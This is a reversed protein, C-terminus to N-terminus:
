IEWRRARTIFSAEMIQQQHARGVEVRARWAPEAVLLLGDIHPCVRIEHRNVQDSRRRLHEAKAAALREAGKMKAPGSSSRKARAALEDAYNEFYEDIRDLERRLSNEQRSRVADLEEKLDVELAGRLLDNWDAPDPLPWPINAEPGSDPQAWLIEDALGEDLAGGPLSIALRRLSWHQDIAQIECRALVLLSFHFDAKFPEALRWRTTDTFQSRWLKEAVASDPPALSAKGSLVLREIPLPSPRLADALRFTLPCGPFVEKAADRPGSTDSPAFRLEGAHLAGDPNWPKAANGEAIVELRDHFTRECLAGLAALAEEYFDLAAGPEYSLRDLKM